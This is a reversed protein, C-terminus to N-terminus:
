LLGSLRISSKLSSRGNEISCEGWLVPILNLQSKFYNYYLAVLFFHADLAFGFCECKVNGKERKM